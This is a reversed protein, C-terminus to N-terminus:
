LHWKDEKKFSMEIVNDNEDKEIDIFDFKFWKALIIIVLAMLLKDLITM